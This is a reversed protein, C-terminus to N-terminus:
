PHGRGHHPRVGLGWEPDTGGKRGSPVTMPDMAETARKIARDLPEQTGLRGCAATQKARLPRNKEM